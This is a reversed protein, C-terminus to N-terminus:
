IALLHLQRHYKNKHTANDSHVHTSNHQQSHTTCNDNPVLEKKRNKDKLTDDKFEKM